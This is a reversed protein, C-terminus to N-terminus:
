RIEITALIGQQREVRFERSILGVSYLPKFIKDPIYRTGDFKGNKIPEVAFTFSTPEPIVFRIDRGNAKRSVNEKIMVTEINKMPDAVYAKGDICFEGPHFLPVPVQLLIKKANLTEFAYAIEFRFSCEGRPLEFRIQGHMFELWLLARDEKFEM